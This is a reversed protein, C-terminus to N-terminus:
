MTKKQHNQQESIERTSNSCILVPHSKAYCNVSSSNCHKQTTSPTFILLFYNPRKGFNQHFTKLPRKLLQNIALFFFRAEKKVYIEFSEYSMKKYYLLNIWKM